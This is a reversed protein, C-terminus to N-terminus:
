IVSSPFSYNAPRIWVDRTHKKDGPNTWDRDPTRGPRTSREIRRGLSGGDGSSGSPDSPNNLSCRAPRGWAAASCSRRRRRARGRFCTCCQLCWTDGAEEKTRWSSKFSDYRLVVETHSSHHIFPQLCVALQVKNNSIFYPVESLIDFVMLPDEPRRCRRCHRGWGEHPCRWFPKSHERLERIVTFWVAM